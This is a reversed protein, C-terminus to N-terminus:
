ASIVSRLKGHPSKSFAGKERGSESGPFHISWQFSLNGLQSIDLELDRAREKVQIIGQLRAARRLRRANEGMEWM